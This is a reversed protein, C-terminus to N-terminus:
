IEALVAQLAERDLIEFMHNAYHICHIDELHRIERHLTTRSVNLQAALKIVSGPVPILSSKRLDSQTLLYFALRQDTGKYSLMEVKRNLFFAHDALESIFNQLVRDDKRLLNTLQKKPILMLDTNKEATLECPYIQERSFCAAEGILEGPKKSTMRILKGSSTIKSVLVSGTLVLGIQDAFDSLHFITEGKQFHLTHTEVDKMLTQVQNTSIGAFLRSRALASLDM